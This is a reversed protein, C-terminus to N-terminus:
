KVRIWETAAGDVSYDVSGAEPNNMASRDSVRCGYLQHREAGLGFSVAFGGPKNALAVWDFELGTQPVAFKFSFTVKEQGVTMGIAGQPGFKPSVARSGKLSLDYVTVAFQHDLEVLIVPALVLNAM